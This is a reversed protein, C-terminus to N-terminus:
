LDTANDDTDDLHALNIKLTHVSLVLIILILISKM